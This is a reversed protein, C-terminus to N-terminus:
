YTTCNVKSLKHVCNEMLIVFFYYYYNILLNESIYQIKTVTYLQYNHMNKFTYLM